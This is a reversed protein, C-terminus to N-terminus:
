ARREDAAEPEAEDAGREEGGRQGGAETDQGRRLRAEGAGSSCWFTVPNVDHGRQSLSSFSSVPLHGSLYATGSTANSVRTWSSSKFKM